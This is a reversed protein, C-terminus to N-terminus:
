LSAIAEEATKYYKYLNSIKTIELLNLIFDQVGVLIVPINHPNLQRYALLLGGLGSSDIIAINSLDLILAKINPQALILIHSKFDASKNCELTSELIKLVVVNNINETSFNM